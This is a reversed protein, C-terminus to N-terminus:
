DLVHCISCLCMCVYRWFTTKTHFLKKSQSSIMIAHLTNYLNQILM